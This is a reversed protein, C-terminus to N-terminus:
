KRQKWPGVLEVLDVFDVVNEPRRWCRDELAELPTRTVHVEVERRLFARPDIRQDRMGTWLTEVKETCTGNVQLCFAPKRGRVASRLGCRAEGGM